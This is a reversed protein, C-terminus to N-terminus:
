AFFFSLGFPLKFLEAINCRISRDNFSDRFLEMGAMFSNIMVIMVVTWVVRIEKMARM